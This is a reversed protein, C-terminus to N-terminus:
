SDDFKWIESDAQGADDTKESQRILIEDTM